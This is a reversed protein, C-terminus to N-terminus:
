KGARRQISEITQRAQESIRSSLGPTSRTYPEIASLDEPLGVLYLGRLAEWVNKEDPLLSFVAQDKTLTSGNQPLITQIQGPVPSRFEETQNSPTEIRALLTGRNVRDGVKLREKFIGATPATVKFPRLMEILVPRGAADGFRVLALAANWRVLAQPDALGKLLSTHFPAYSNDQGMVWATTMRLEMVPSDALKLVQPYFQEVSRDGRSLRDSIQALAHQANRPHQNDSLYRATQQNNLKGGFWTARWFLFPMLTVVWAIILIIIMSLRPKKKIPDATPSSGDASSKDEILDSM